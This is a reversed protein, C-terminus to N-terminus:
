KVFWLVRVPLSRALAAVKLASPGIARGGAIVLYKREHCDRFFVQASTSIARAQDDNTHCPLLNPGPAV